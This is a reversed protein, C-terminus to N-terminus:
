GTALLIGFADIRVIAVYRVLGALGLLTEGFRAASVTMTDAPEAGIAHTTICGTAGSTFRAVQRSQGSTAGIM